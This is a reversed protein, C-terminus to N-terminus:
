GGGSGDGEEEDDGEDDGEGDEPTEEPTEEPPTEGEAPEEGVESEPAEAAEEPAPEEAPPEPRPRIHAYFLEEQKDYVLKGGVVTYQVLTEYHLVDGDTVILDADKGVELTGVRHDVGLLRAPVITVAQLAADEPLGGRVAFAADILLHLLDRGAIGGLDISGNSPEICIQVGARHLLAANEISSGGESVRLEDKWRRERPNLIVTAGSRGLEDAVTWGERAGQIVPRFGFRQALRAIALLEGSESANFRARKEGKLVELASSNVSRKSPETEKDSGAAEWARFERLYKAAVEFDEVTRRRAEASNFSFSSLIGDSMVVDEILYRRLKVAAGSQELTTIGSALTLVLYSSFPDYADSVRANLESKAPAAALEADLEAEWDASWDAAPDVFYDDPQPALTGQTVRTTASIGVLGPYVRLGRVELREAGEPVHVAYGIEEIVGDKCLVTAGRLVGGLGTHVDGGVLAFWEPEKEEEDEVDTKGAESDPKAEEEQVPASPSAPVAAAPGALLLLSLLPLQIPIPM